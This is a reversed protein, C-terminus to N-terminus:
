MINVLEVPLMTFTLLDNSAKELWKYGISQRALLINDNFINMGFTFNLIVLSLFCEPQHSPKTPNM